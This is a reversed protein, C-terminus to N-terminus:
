PADISTKPLTTGNIYKGEDADFVDATMVAESSTGNMSVTDTDLLDVLSKISKGTNDATVTFNTSRAWSNLASTAYFKDGDEDYQVNMGELKRALATKAAEIGNELKGIIPDFEDYM